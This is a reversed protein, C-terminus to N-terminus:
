LAIEVPHVFLFMLLLWGSAALALLCLVIGIVAFVVGKTSRPNLRASKILGIIGLTLGAISFAPYGYVFIAQMFDSTLDSALWLLPIWLLAAAIGVIMSILSLREARIRKLDNM